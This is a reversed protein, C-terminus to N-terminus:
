QGDRPAKIEVGEATQTVMLSVAFGRGVFREASERSWGGHGRREDWFDGHEVLYDVLEEKTAFAPTVPAGESVTEYVAFHTMEDESWKPRYYKRDPPDGEYEWYELDRSEGSCYEPREGREWAAFGEKWERARTEFDEDYLPQYCRGPGPVRYNCQPWHPCERTPHEWGGAVKRIERGM